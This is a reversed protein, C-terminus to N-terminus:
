REVGSETGLAADSSKGNNTQCLAFRDLEDAIRHTQLENLRRGDFREVLPNRDHSRNQDFVTASNRRGGLPEDFSSRKIAM